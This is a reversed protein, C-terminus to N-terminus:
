QALKEIRLPGDGKAARVYARYGESAFLFRNRLLENVDRFEEATKTKIRLEPNNSIADLIRGYGDSLAGFAAKNQAAEHMANSAFKYHLLAASVDALKAGDVYHVHSFLRLGSGTRFLSHKTLCCGIGYVTSRIGGWYLATEASAIRNGRGHALTLPDERYKIKRVQSVDYYRYAEKLKEQQKAALWSLPKESFMDLMQTIVATYNNENLYQLLRRLSLVDSYPYDFFEDMDVDLCWGAPVAREALQKKLLGQQGGVPLTSKYVTVNLHRRACEITNDTSGNDMFYIHRFGLAVYHEVFQDLYFEGNKVVCTVVAEDAALKIERPGCVHTLSLGVQRNRLSQRWTMPIFTKLTALGAM